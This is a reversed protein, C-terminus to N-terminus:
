QNRHLRVGLLFVGLKRGDTNIGLEKPTYLRDVSVSITRGAKGSLTCFYTDPSGITAPKGDPCIVQLSQSVAPTVQNGLPVLKLEVEGSSLIEQRIEITAVRSGSWVSGSEEVQGWGAGLLGYLSAGKYIDSPAPQWHGAPAGLGAVATKTFVLFEGMAYVHVDPTKRVLRLLGADDAPLLYAYGEKYDASLVEAVRERRLESARETNVRAIYFQDISIGAVAAPFAYDFYSNDPPAFGPQVTRIAKIGAAKMAKIQASYQEPWGASKHKPFTTATETFQLLTALILLGILKPRPLWTALIYVTSICLAYGPVWVFRGGARFLSGLAEWQPLPLFLELPGVSIRNSTAFFTFLLVFVATVKWNLAHAKWCPMRGRSSIRLLVLTALLTLFGAGLYFSGEYEGPDSPIDGLLISGNADIFTLLDARYFGYGGDRMSTGSSMGTFLYFLAIVIIVNALVKFATVLALNAVQATTGAKKADVVLLTAGLAYLGFTMGFMYVHTFAAFLLILFFWLHLRARGALIVFIGLLIFYHAGLDLHGTNRALFQPIQTFLLAILLATPTSEKGLLHRFILFTVIFQLLVNTLIIYGHHQDTPLLLGLHTLSKDALAFLFSHSCQAISADFGAGYDPNLGLPWRWVDAAFYISCLHYAGLDGEAMWSTAHPDLPSLSGYILWITACAVALALFILGIGRFIPTGFCISPKM